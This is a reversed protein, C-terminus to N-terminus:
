FIGSNSQAEKSGEKVMKELTLYVGREIKDQCERLVDRLVIRPREPNISAHLWRQHPKVFAHNPESIHYAFVWDEPLPKTQDYGSVEGKKNVYTHGWIDRTSM